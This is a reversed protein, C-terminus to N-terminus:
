DRAVPEYRFMALRLLAVGGLIGGVVCAESDIGGRSSVGSAFIVAGALVVIAWAVDRM